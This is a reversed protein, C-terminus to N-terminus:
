WRSVLTAPGSCIRVRIRSIARDSCFVGAALYTSRSQPMPSAPIGVFAHDHAIEDDLDTDRRKRWWLTWWM